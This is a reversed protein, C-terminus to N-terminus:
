ENKDEEELKVQKIHLQGDNALGTMIATKGGGRAGTYFKADSMEFLKKIMEDLFKNPDFKNYVATIPPIVRKSM